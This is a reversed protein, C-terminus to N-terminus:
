RQQPAKMPFDRHSGSWFVLHGSMAVLVSSYISFFCFVCILAFCVNSVLFYKGAKEICITKEDKIYFILYRLNKKRKIEDFRNKVEESVKVGSAQSALM